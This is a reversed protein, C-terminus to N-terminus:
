FATKVARVALKGLLAGAICVAVSVAAYAGAMWGRGQELLELTELSFTSFTTFGGCLGTKLFLVWRRSLAAGDLAAESIAGIALSGLFNIGLTIVPFSGPIPILGILYRLVAGCAGGAAVALVSTWM